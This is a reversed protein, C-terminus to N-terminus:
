REHAPPGAQAPRAARSAAPPVFYLVRQCSECQVISDNRRVQQFVAPRLRVQCVTCRENAAQAVVIGRVKAIRAFLELLGKDDFAATLRARAEDCETAADQEARVEREIAAREAAVRAQAEKLAADAKKLAATTEDADLMNRLVKEEQQDVELAAAAIQHQMARYEENTKVAMLQEKYKEHRERAALLDRDLTRRATQNDALAQKAAALAAAADQLVTDLAATRAPAEVIAKAAAASRNEIAQLEILRELDPLM